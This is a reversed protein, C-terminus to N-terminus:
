CCPGLREVDAEQGVRALLSGVTAGDPPVSLEADLEALPALVFRRERLRPHPLTLRPDNSVVDGYLLLDIDLVRPGHRVGRQRGALTELDLALDLLARAPLGSFGVVVTNLFDPQPINSIPRTRYLSAVRGEFLADRLLAAAAALATASDGLNAGLGYAVRARNKTTTM